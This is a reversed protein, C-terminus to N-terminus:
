SSPWDPTEPHLDYAGGPRCELSHYEGPSMAADDAAVRLAILHADRALRRASARRARDDPSRLVADHAEDAIGRLHWSEHALTVIGFVARLTDESCGGGILCRFSDQDGRWVQELGRCTTASLSTKDRPRGHEDFDVWGANPTIEVLRTWFGPCSVDVDRLAVESAVLALRNENEERRVFQWASFLMVPIMLLLLIDCLQSIPKTRRRGYTSNSAGCVCADRSRSGSRRACSQARQRLQEAGGACGARSGLESTRERRRVRQVEQMGVELRNGDAGGRGCALGPAVPQPLGIRDVQADRTSVPPDREAEQVLEAVEDVM